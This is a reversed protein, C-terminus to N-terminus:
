SFGTVGWDDGVQLPAVRAPPPACPQRSGPANDKRRKSRASSIWTRCIRARRTVVSYLCSAHSVDALGADLASYGGYFDDEDM